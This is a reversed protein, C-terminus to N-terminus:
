RILDLWQLLLLGHQDMPFHSVSTERNKFIRLSCHHAVTPLIFKNNTNAMCIVFGWKIIGQCMFEVGHFVYSYKLFICRMLLYAM